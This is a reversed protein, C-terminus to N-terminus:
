SDRKKPLYPPLVHVFFSVQSVEVLFQLHEGQGPAPIFAYRARLIISTLLFHLLEVLLHLTPPRSNQHARAQSHDLREVLGWIVLQHNISCNRLSSFRNAWQYSDGQYWIFIKLGAVLSWWGESLMLTWWDLNVQISKHVKQSYWMISLMPQSGVCIDKFNAFVNSTPLWGIDRFHAETLEDRFYPYIPEIKKM